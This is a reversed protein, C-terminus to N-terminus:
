RALVISPRLELEVAFQVYGRGVPAIGSFATKNIDTNQEFAEVQAALVGYSKAIGSLKIQLAGDAGLGYAFASYSIDKLTYDELFKFIPSAITHESLAKELVHLQNAAKILENVTDPELAKEEKVIDTSLKDIEKELNSKYVFLGGCAAMAIFFILFSISGLFGFSRGRYISSPAFTKKPIFSFNEDAM